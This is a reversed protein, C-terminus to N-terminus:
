GEYKGEEEACRRQLEQLSTFDFIDRMTLDAGSELLVRICQEHGCCSARHLATSKDKDQFNIKDRSSSELIIKLVKSRPEDSPLVNPGDGMVSFMLLTVDNCDVVDCSAGMQILVEVVKVHAEMCAFALPTEENINKMDLIDEPYMNPHQGSPYSLLANKYIAEIIEVSGHKSAFHLASSKSGRTQLTIDPSFKMLAHVTSAHGKASALMLPSFGDDDKDDVKLRVM